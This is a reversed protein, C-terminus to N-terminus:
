ADNVDVTSLASRISDEASLGERRSRAKGTMNQLLEISKLSAAPSGSYMHESLKAVQNETDVEHREVMAALSTGKGKRHIEDRWPIINAAAEEESCEKLEALAKVADNHYKVLLFAYRSFEQEEASKIKKASKSPPNLAKIKGGPIPDYGDLVEVDGKHRVPSVVISPQSPEEEPIDAFYRNKESM